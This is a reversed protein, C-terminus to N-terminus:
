EPVVTVRVGAPVDPHLKISVTHDGLTNIPHEL